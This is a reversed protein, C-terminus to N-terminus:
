RVYVATGIPLIRFMLDATHYMPLRACGHSAPYLPVSPSGHLAYGKYFYSPKYLDGLKAHRWGNIKRNIKFNGTPTRAVDCEGKYCYRKGSGTSTLSILYVKNNKYVVVLQRKKSIEVRNAKGGKIIRAPNKPHALAKWSGGGFVGSSSPKLGNVKQFAQVAYRLDKGYRGDVTGPDYHLARLRKQLYTVWKGKSGYKLVPPKAAAAAPAATVAAPKVATTAAMAPPALFPATMAGAVLALGAIRARMGALGRNM